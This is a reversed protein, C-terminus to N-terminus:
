PKNEQPGLTSTTCQLPIEAWRDLEGRSRTLAFFLILLFSVLFLLLGVEASHHMLFTFM